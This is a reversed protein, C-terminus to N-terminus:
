LRWNITVGEMTAAPDRRGPIGRELAISEIVEKIVPRKEDTTMVEWKAPIDDSRVLAATAPSGRGGRDAAGSRGVEGPDVPRRGHPDRSTARVALFVSSRVM